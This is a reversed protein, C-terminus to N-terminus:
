DKKVIQIVRDVFRPASHISFTPAEPKYIIREGKAVRYLQDPTLRAGKSATKYDPIGKENPATELVYLKKGAIGIKIFDAEHKFQGLAAGLTLDGLGKALISDTDCYIVGECQCMAEWMMARVYGTVSASTAVNYFRLEEGELPSEALFRSGFQGAFTWKDDLSEIDRGRVAGQADIHEGDVVKYHSYNRPNSAFKGYLANMFIKAYLDNQKDGTQKALRRLEYFHLVYDKFDKLESFQYIRVIEGKFTDTRIAADLEWGTVYYRRELTDNPFVLEGSDLRYPFAGRSIGDVTIFCGGRVTRSLKDFIKPSIESYDLSYPHPSCMAFPYASNIDVLTYNEKFVGIALAECRGGYYFKSFADYIVGGRDNPLTGSMGEWYGLAASAQTLYFGYDNIFGSVFKYLNRCDSELYCAIEAMYKHRINKRMKAYDFEMKEMNALKTPLINYSDRFECNGIIFKSIRGNIIMVDSLDLMYDLIFHWDFRGGNHAYIITPESVQYVFVMFEDTSTFVRYHEGDFYGWLFPEPITIYDFPDTECDAVAIKKPQKKRM